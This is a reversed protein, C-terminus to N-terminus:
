KVESFTPDWQRQQTRTGTSLPHETVHSVLHHLEWNGGSGDGSYISLPQTCVHRVCVQVHVCTHIYLCMHHVCKYM